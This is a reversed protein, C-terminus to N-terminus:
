DFWGIEQDKLGGGIPADNPFVPHMLNSHTPKPVVLATSPHAEAVTAAAKLAQNEAMLTENLAALQRAAAESKDLSTQLQKATQRQTQLEELTDAQTALKEELMDITRQLGAAQAEAATLQTKLEAITAELNTTSAATASIAKDAAPQPQASFGTSKSSTKSSKTVM